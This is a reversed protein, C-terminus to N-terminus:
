EVTVSLKVEFVAPRRQASAYTIKTHRTVHLANACKGVVYVLVCM